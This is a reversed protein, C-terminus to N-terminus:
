ANEKRAILLFVPFDREAGGAVPKRISHATIDLVNMERTPQVERLIAEGVAKMLAIRAPKDDWTTAAQDFHSTQTHSM